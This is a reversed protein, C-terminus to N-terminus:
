KKHLQTKASAGAAFSWRNGDGEAKMWANGEFAFFIMVGTLLAATMKLLSLKSVNM